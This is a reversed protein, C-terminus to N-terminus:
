IDGAADATQLRDSPAVPRPITCDKVGGDLLLALLNTGAAPLVHWRRGRTARGVPPATMRRLLGRDRLLRVSRSASPQSTGMVRAIAQCAAPTLERRLRFADLLARQLPSVSARADRVSKEYRLRKALEGSAMKRIVAGV